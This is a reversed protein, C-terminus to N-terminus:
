ASVWGACRAPGVGVHGRMDQQRQEIGARGAALHDCPRLLRLQQRRARDALEAALRPGFDLGAKEAPHQALGVHFFIQFPVGLAFDRPTHLSCLMFSM